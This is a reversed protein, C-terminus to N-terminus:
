PKPNLGRNGGISNLATLIVVVVVVAAVAAGAVAARREEPFVAPVLFCM